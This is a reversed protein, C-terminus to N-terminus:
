KSLLSQLKNKVEDFSVKGKESLEQSLWQFYLACFEASGKIDSQIKPYGESILSDLFGDHHEKYCDEANIWLNKYLFDQTPLKNTKNNKYTRITSKYVTSIWSHIYQGSNLNKYYYLKLLHELRADDYQLLKQIIVTEPYAMERMRNNFFDDPLFSISNPLKEERVITRKM